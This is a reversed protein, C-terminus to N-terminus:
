YADIYYIYVYVFDYYLYLIVQKSQNYKKNSLSLILSLLLTNIANSVSAKSEFDNLKNFTPSNPITLKLSAM